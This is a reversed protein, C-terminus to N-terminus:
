WLKTKKPIHNKICCSFLTLFLCCFLLFLCFFGLLRFLVCISFSYYLCLFFPYFFHCARLFLYMQTIVFCFLLFVSFFFSFLFLFSILSLFEIKKVCYFLHFDPFSSFTVFYFFVFSSFFRLFALWVIAIGILFICSGTFFFIREKLSKYQIVLRSMETNMFSPACFLSSYLHHINLTHSPPYKTNFFFFIYIYYSDYFLPVFLIIKNLFIKKQM